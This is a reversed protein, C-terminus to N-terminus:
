NAQLAIICLFRPVALSEFLPSIEATNSFNSAIEPDNEQLM